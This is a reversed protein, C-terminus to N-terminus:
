EEEFPGILKALDLYGSFFETAYYLEAFSRDLIDMNEKYLIEYSFIINPDESDDDNIHTGKDYLGIYHNYLQEKSKPIRIFLRTRPENMHLRYIYMLYKIM